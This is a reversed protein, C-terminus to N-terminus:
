GKFQPFALDPETTRSTPTSNQSSTVRHRTSSTGSKRALWRRGSERELIQSARFKEKARCVFSKKWWKSAIEGLTLLGAVDSRGLLLTGDTEM